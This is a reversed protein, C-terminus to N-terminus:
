DITLVAKGAVRRDLLAEIASAAERWSVVLDVQPDLHGAAVLRSLRALTATGSQGHRLEDFVLLGRVKAGPARGFLARGPFTVPDDTSHAFTIVTGRPAVCQIALGLTAGGVGEVIVNFDDQAGPEVESIVEDAGLEALGATRRALATVHAGSRKALQIAFRGVGGSAGTVLVRRELAVGGIDLAFMATLGAVPLTAAQEFTVDDPLEALISTEVAALQAWAGRQVLGVVRAGQQPGTGDAAPARVIGAVDWGEVLGPPDNPLRRVEGRNLSTARVEVLAQSPLPEPDTAERLEVHPPTGSAVLALM